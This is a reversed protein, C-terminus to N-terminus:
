EPTDATPAPQQELVTVEATGVEPTPTDPKPKRPPRPKAKAPEEDPHWPAHKPGVTYHGGDVNIDLRTTDDPVDYENGALPGEEITIRKVTDGTNPHYTAAHKDNAGM